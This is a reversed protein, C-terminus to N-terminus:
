DLTRQNTKHFYNSIVLSLVNSRCTRYIFGWLFSFLSSIKPWYYIRHLTLEANVGSHCHTLHFAVVASFAFRQFELLDFQVM